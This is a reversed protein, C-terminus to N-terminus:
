KEILELLKIMRAQIKPPMNEINKEVDRNYFDVIWTVKNNKEILHYFFM